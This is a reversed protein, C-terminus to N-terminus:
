QQAGPTALWEKDAAERFLRVFTHLEAPSLDSIAVYAHEGDSWRAVPYGRRTASSSQTAGRQAPLETLSILHERRKFVLTPAGGGDVIDLRAGILPFGESALDVVVAAVPLKAALWPKVAHRDSSAIDVPHGSIQGRMHGAILADLREDEPTARPAAFYGALGAAVVLSAALSTLLGASPARRRWMRAAVSASSSEEHVNALIRAKLADPAVDRPAHSRMAERVTLLRDRAAALEPEVGLRREITIVGAADLEGDVYANLLLEDDPDIM